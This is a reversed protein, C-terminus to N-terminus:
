YNLLDLKGAQYTAIPKNNQYAIIKLVNKNYYHPMQDISSNPITKGQDSGTALRYSIKFVIYLNVNSKHLQELYQQKSLRETGTAPHYYHLLQGNRYFLAYEWLGVNKDLMQEFKKLRAEQDGRNKFPNTNNNNKYKVILKNM